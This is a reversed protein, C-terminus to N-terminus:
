ASKRMGQAGTTGTGTIPIYRADSKGGPITKWLENM